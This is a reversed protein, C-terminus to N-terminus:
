RTVVFHRIVGCAGALINGILYGLADITSSRMTEGTEYKLDYWFEKTLVYVALLVEIIALPLWSSTFFIATLLVAYGALAHGINALNQPNEMWDGPKAM